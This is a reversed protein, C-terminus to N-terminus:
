PKPLVLEGGSPYPAKIRVAEIGKAKWFLEAFRQVKALLEQAPEMSVDQRAKSALKMIQWVLEHLEPFQKLHEPKFFDGWIIRVEHKVLEAHEDKTATARAMRHVFEQRQQGTADAGPKPLESILQVMRVVTHAALQALHPDYIGCPIDCHASVTQFPMLTEAAHLLRHLM